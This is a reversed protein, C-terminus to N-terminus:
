LARSLSWDRELSAAFWDAAREDEIALAAEHNGGLGAGSWNASTVVVTGDAIVGKAHGTTTRGPDMVRVSGDLHVADARLGAADAPEPATGLLLRVEAGRTRAAVLVSLLEAVADVRTHVYPVLVLARRRAAGLLRQELAAVEEGGTVLRMRREEIDLTRSPVAPRPTGVPPALPPPPVVRSWAAPPEGAEAWAADFAERGRGALAPAGTVSAWWERTGAMGPEPADRHLLNGTGLAIAGGAGLLLKWHSEVGPHGGAVRCEAGTGHLVRMASANAGGHRDLLLRVAVGRRSARALRAAYSPGTEYVAVDLRSRAGDILEALLGGATDPGLALVCRAV